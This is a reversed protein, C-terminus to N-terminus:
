LPITCKCFVDLNVTHKDTLSKHKSLCYKEQSQQGNRGSSLWKEGDSCDDICINSDPINMNCTWNGREKRNAQIIRLQVVGPGDDQVYKEKDTALIQNGNPDIWTITATPNSELDHGCILTM